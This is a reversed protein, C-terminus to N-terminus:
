FQWEVQDSKLDADDGSYSQIPLSVRTGAKLIPKSFVPTKDEWHLTVREARASAPDAPHALPFEVPRNTGCCLYLSLLDCFGMAGTWRDLDGPAWGFEGEVTSRRETEERVFGAWAADGSQGLLTCHRSVMVYSLPGLTRAHEISANWSPSTEDVHLAPFPRPRSKDLSNLQAEDSAKWGFDHQGIAQVVEPPLDGFVDRRLAQALHGALISHDAQLVIGFPAQVDRQTPLFVDWGPEAGRETEAGCNRFARFIM